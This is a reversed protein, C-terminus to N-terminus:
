QDHNVGGEYIDGTLFVYKGKLNYFLEVKPTNDKEEKTLAKYADIPMTPTIIHDDDNVIPQFCDAYDGLDVIMHLGKGSMSLETYTDGCARIREYVKRVEADMNGNDDFIHDFDILLQSDTLVYGFPKDDPIDELELWTDPDNWGKPTANKRTAYMQFFRKEEKIGIPLNDRNQKKFDGLSIM